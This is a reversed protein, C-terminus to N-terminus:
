ATLLSILYLDQAKHCSLLVVTDRRLFVYILFMEKKRRANLIFNGPSPRKYIYISLSLSLSPSLSLSLSLSVHINTYTYINYINIENNYNNNTLEIKKVRNM